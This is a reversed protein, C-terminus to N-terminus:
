GRPSQRDARTPRPLMTLMEEVWATLGRAPIPWYSTVLAPMTESVLVSAKSSAFVADADVRHTGARRKRREMEAAGRGRAARLPIEVPVSSLIWRRQASARSTAQGIRHEGGVLGGHTVAETGM